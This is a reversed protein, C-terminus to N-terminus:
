VVTIKYNKIVPKQQQKLLKTIQRCRREWATVKPSQDLSAKVAAKLYLKPFSIVLSTLIIELTFTIEHWGNRNDSSLMQPKINKNYKPYKFKGAFSIRPLHSSLRM